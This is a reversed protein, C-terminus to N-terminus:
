MCAIAYGATLSKSCLLTFSIENFRKTLILRLSPVTKAQSIKFGERTKIVM